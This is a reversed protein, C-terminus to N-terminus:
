KALAKEIEALLVNSQRFENGTAKIIRGNRDILMLRPFSSINYYQILPHADGLGDTYLNVAKASTYSDKAISNLWKEKSKDISVTIFVINSNYEYKEEISNLTNKFYIKCHECGTFWFDIFVVKGKFQNLTVRKGNVDTLSFNYAKDGPNTRKFTNLISLCEKEQVTVLADNLLEEFGTNIFISNKIFFITLMRDRLLQNPISKVQNYFSGYDITKQEASYMAKINQLKFPLYDKSDCLISDPTKRIFETLWTTMKSFDGSKVMYANKLASFQKCVVGIKLMYFAYDSMQSKYKEILSFQANILRENRKFEDKEDDDLTDALMKTMEMRVSNILKNKCISKAAGTGKFDVKYEDLKDYKIFMKIHDGPEFLYQNVPYTDWDGNYWGVTFYHPKSQAPIKFLYAGSSTKIGKFLDPNSSRMNLDYLSNPYVLVFPIFKLATDLTVEFTVMRDALTESKVPSTLLVAFILMACLTINIIKM